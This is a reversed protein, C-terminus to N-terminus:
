RRRRARRGAAACRTLGANRNTDVRDGGPVAPESDRVSEIDAGLVAVYTGGLVQPAFGIRFTRLSGPAATVTYPGPVPGTPGVVQVVDAATFTGVQMDRDFTVDLAAIVGNLLLNEGDAQPAVPVGDIGVARSAVVHPGPVILPLTEPDFPFQLAALGAADVAVGGLPRPAGYADQGAEGALGDADQDMPNGTTAVAQRTGTTLTLSWALLVGVDAGAADNIELTWTGNPSKGTLLGLPAEPRFSGIYPPGANLADDIAIAAQDDFTTATAAGPNVPDVGFNDGSGGNRNTLLIRTNDPAVLTIILDATFSHTLRLNVNVDGIVDTAPIGVVPLTSITVDQSRIGTGGTGVPPVPRNVQAPPAAFTATQPNVVIFAVGQIGDHVGPGVVYSYTGVRGSPAFDVRFRTALPAGAPGFAGADLPTVGSVAVPGGGANAATTDRFFVRVDAATFTAPDVPRDFTVVFAQARPTGDAAPSGNLADGPLGVPGMTSSVIRPGAAIQATSTRINLLVQETAGGNLGGNQNGAWAAHVQGAAVALGQRDGFNFTTDRSGNGTSQNEPIPGLVIAQQTAQNFATQVANAFPQPGPPGNRLRQSSFSRGGDISATLTTVVRARAADYRADLFSAVLTGTTQDVALQPQFQPRGSILSAESFGDVAADDDNLKVVPSFNNGATALANWTLGGDDSAALFVETNDASNGNTNYRGVYAVYIRGQYPSSPGLTNDAAITPAPGIGREPTAASGTAYPGALSGRVIATEVLIPFGDSIVIATTPIASDAGDTLGETFTLSWNRLTGVNGNAADRIQLTWTGSLRDGAVAGPTGFFSGFIGALDRGQSQFRGTFPAAAGRTTGNFDVVNRAAQDDFVTGLRVGSATTGLNAGAAQRDILTIPGLPLGNVDTAGAPPVLTLTLDGLVPHDLNVTVDLDTIRQTAGLVVPIAFPTTAPTTVNNAVTADAIPGGTLDSFLAAAGGDRIRDTTLVDRAPSAGAASNFDDWVVTVQGGPVRGDVTGQSVVLRPSANRDTGFHGGDNLIRHATFTQGGDASAVVKITNPNFNAPNSIPAVDRTAWAIYVTGAFPDSQGGFSPVNNDVALMPTFAPDQVWEYVVRRTSNPGLQQQLPDGTGAFTLATPTAGSFNFKQLVLAGSGNDASHQSALVYVIGNRDFAVSTDTIQAFARVPNTTAPDSLAGALGLATWSAGGNTSYAAEAIVRTDGALQPDNRTWTAVLKQPNTPDVAIAPTNENGRSASVAVPAAVTPTPLVALLTRPELGELAVRRRRAKRDPRPSGPRRPRVTPSEVAPAEPRM